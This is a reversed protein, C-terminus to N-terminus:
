IQALTLERRAAKVASGRLLGCGALSRRRVGGMEGRRSNKFLGYTIAACPLAKDCDGHDRDMRSQLHNIRFPSTASHNFACAQFVFEALMM